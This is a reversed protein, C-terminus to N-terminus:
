EAAVGMWAPPVAARSPARSAAESERIIQKVTPACRGCQPRCGLCGFVEPMGGCAGTGLAGKIARDSLANCSCVIVV